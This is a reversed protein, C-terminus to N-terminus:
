RWSDGDFHMRQHLNAGCGSKWRTRLSNVGDSSPAHLRDRGPHMHPTNTRKNENGWLRSCMLVCFGYAVHTFFRNKSKAKTKPIDVIDTQSRPFGSTARTRFPISFHSVFVRPPFDPESHRTGRPNQSGLQTIFFCNAADTARHWTDNFETASSDASVLSGYFTCNSFCM